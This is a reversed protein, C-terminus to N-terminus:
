YVWYVPEKALDFKLKEQLSLSAGNGIAIQLFPINGKSLFLNAAYSELAEAIGRRRFAPLVELMGISGEAHQGIFGALEGGVFAGFLVGTELREMLYDRESDHSYHEHVFDLHRQDLPHIECANHDAPLPDNGLYAAQWYPVSEGLGLQQQAAQASFLQHAVVLDVPQGRVIDSALMENAADSTTASIMIAECETHYLTVGRESALQLIAKGRDIAELMDIHQLRDNKLYRVAIELKNM